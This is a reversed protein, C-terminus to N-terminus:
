AEALRSHFSWTHRSHGADSSNKKRQQASLAGRKALMTNRCKELDEIAVDAEHFQAFRVIRRSITHNVAEM